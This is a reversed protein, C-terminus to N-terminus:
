GPAPAVPVERGHEFRRIIRRRGEEMVVVVKPAGSASRFRADDLAETLGKLTGPFTRAMSNGGGVEADRVIYTKVAVAM